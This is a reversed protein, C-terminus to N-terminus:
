RPRRQAHKTVPFTPSEFCALMDWVGPFRRETLHGSEHLAIRVTDAKVWRPSFWLAVVDGHKDRETVGAASVFGFRASLDEVSAAYIPIFAGPNLQRPAEARSSCGTAFTAFTALIFLCLIQRM